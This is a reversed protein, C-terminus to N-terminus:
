GTIALAKKITAVVDGASAGTKVQAEAAKVAQAQKAKLDAIVQQTNVGTKMAIALKMLEGADAEDARMTYELILEQFKRLAASAVATPDTDAAAKLYAGSIESARRTKEELRFSDLWNWVATRSIRYGKALVWEHCEDTTRASNKDRVFQELAALDEPTLLEAVRFNRPV